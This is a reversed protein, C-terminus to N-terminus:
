LVRTRLYDAVQHIATRGQSLAGSLSFFPHIMGPYRTRTVPVGAEELRLAYAEGEDRLVDCEATIVLAPPLRELNPALLPSAFPHLSDEPRALYCSRFWEMESLTLYYGDAFERYSPTDFSGLNTVPYVLIQGALSFNAERAKLSMV